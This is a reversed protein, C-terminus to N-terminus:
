YRSSRIESKLIGHSELRETGVGNGYTEWHEWFERLARYRMLSEPKAKAWRALANPDEVIWADILYSVVNRRPDFEHKTLYADVEIAVKRAPTQKLRVRTYNRFANDREPGLPKAKYNARAAAPDNPHRLEHLSKKHTALAADRDAGDPMAEFHALANSPDIRTWRNVIYNIWDARRQKLSLALEFAAAPNSRVLRTFTDSFIVKDEDSLPLSFKFDKKKEKEIALRKARRDSMTRVLESDTSKSIIFELLAASDKASLRSLMVHHLPDGSMDRAVLSRWRGLITRLRPRPPVVAAGDKPRQTRAQPFLTAYPLRHFGGFSGDGNLEIYGLHSTSSEKLLSMAESPPLSLVHKWAGAADLDAWIALALWRCKLQLREKPLKAIWALAAEPNSLSWWGIVKLIAERRTSGPLAAAIEVTQEPLARALETILEPAIATRDERTLKSLWNLAKRPDQRVLDRGFDALGKRLVATNKLVPNALMKALKDTHFRRTAFIVNSLKDGPGFREITWAFAAEPDSNAWQLIASGVANRVEATSHNAMFVAGAKGERKGLIRAIQHPIMRLVSTRKYRDLLARLQANSLTNLFVPTRSVLNEPQISKDRPDDPVFRALRQDIEEANLPSVVDQAPLPNAWFGALSTSAIVAVLKLATMVTSNTKM